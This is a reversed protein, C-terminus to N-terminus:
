NVLNHRLIIVTQNFRASSLKVQGACLSDLSTHYTYEFKACTLALNFNLRRCRLRRRRYLRRHPSTRRFFAYFFAASGNGLLQVSDLFGFRDRFASSMASRVGAFSGIKLSVSPSPRGLGPFGM